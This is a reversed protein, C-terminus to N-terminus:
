FVTLNHILTLCKSGGHTNLDIKPNAVSCGVVYSSSSLRGTGDVVTRNRVAINSCGGKQHKYILKRRLM